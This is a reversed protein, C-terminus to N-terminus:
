GTAATGTAARRTSSARRPCCARPSRGSRRPLRWARRPWSSTSASGRPCARPPCSTTRRSRPRRRCPTPFSAPTPPRPQPRRQPGRAATTSATVGCYGGRGRGAACRTAWARTTTRRTACRTLCRRRASSRARRSSRPMWARWTRRTRPEATPHTPPAPTPRPTLAAIARAGVWAAPPPPHMAWLAPAWGVSPRVQAAGVLRRRSAAGAQRVRARVNSGHRCRRLPPRRRARRYLVPDHANTDRCFPFLRRAATPTLVVRLPYARNREVHELIQGALAAKDPVIDDPLGYQFVLEALRLPAAAATSAGSDAAPADAKMEADAMVRADPLARLVAPTFIATDEAAAAPCASFTHADALRRSLARHPATHASGGVVARREAMAVCPHAVTIIVGDRLQYM